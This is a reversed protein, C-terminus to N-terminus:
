NTVLAIMARAMPCQWQAGWDARALCLPCSLQLLLKNSLHRGPGPTCPTKLGDLTVPQRAIGLGGKGLLLSGAGGAAQVRVFLHPQDEPQHWTRHMLEAAISPFCASLLSLLQLVFCCRQFLM